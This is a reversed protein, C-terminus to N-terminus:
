VHQLALVAGMREEPSGKNGDPCPRWKILNRPARDGWRQFVGANREDSPLRKLPSPLFVQM